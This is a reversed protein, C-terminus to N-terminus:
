RGWWRRFGARRYEFQVLGAFWHAKAWSFGPDRHGGGAAGLDQHMTWGRGHLLSRGTLYTPPLGFHRLLFAVIRAARRLEEDRFGRRAFGAMELGISASNFNACHWAKRGYPVLQTVESGDEKLVLHASAKAAPNRLWSIAGAYGGETDHLVVMRIRETRASQNPSEAYKLPPLVTGAM